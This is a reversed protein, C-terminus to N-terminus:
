FVIDKFIRKTNLSLSEYENPFLTNPSAYRKWTNFYPVIEIYIESLLTISESNYLKNM